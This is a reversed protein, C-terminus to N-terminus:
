GRLASDGYLRTHKPDGTKSNWPDFQAAISNAAAAFSSYFQEEIALTWFHSSGNWGNDLAVKFNTIYLANVLWTQRMGGLDLWSTVAICAYFAPFLRLARRSYFLAAAQGLPLTARYGRLIRTILVGSIVFFLTVGIDAVGTWLFHEILVLGISLARLGDLRPYYTATSNGNM